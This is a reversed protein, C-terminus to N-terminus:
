RMRTHSFRKSFELLKFKNKRFNETSTLRVAWRDYTMINDGMYLFEKGSGDHRPYNQPEDGIVLDDGLYDDEDLDVYEDFSYGADFNFDRSDDEPHERPLCLLWIDYPYRKYFQYLREMEERIEQQHSEKQFPKIEVCVRHVTKRSQRYNEGNCTGPDSFELFLDPVWLEGAESELTFPEYTIKAGYMTRFFFRHWMVELYSKHEVGRYFKQQPKINYEFHSSM